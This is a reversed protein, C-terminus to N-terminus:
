RRQPDRAVEDGCARALDAVAALFRAISAREPGTLTHMIQAMRADAGAYIARLEAFRGTSTLRASRRDAPDPSRTIWGDAELRALMGTLTAAQIDTRNSLYKPTCPGDRDIVDLIDLDRPNLGVAGAVKDNLIGLEIRLNRILRQLEAGDPAGV